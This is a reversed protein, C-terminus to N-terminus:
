CPQRVLLGEFQVGCGGMVMHARDNGLLTFTGTTPCGSKCPLIFSMSDGSAFGVGRRQGAQVVIGTDDQMFTYCSEVSALFWNLTGAWTGWLRASPPELGDVAAGPPANLSTLARTWNDSGYERTHQVDAM